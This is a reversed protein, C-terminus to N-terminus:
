ELFLSNREAPYANFTGLGQCVLLGERNEAIISGTSSLLRRGSYVVKGHGVLMDGPRIPAYFNIKFEVTSVLEGREVALSLAAVGLVGDMLASIAGGHAALPNSLHDHRVRMRYTIEGPAIVEFRMGMWQGFANVENYKELIPHLKNNTNM